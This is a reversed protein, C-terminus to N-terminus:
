MVEQVNININDVTVKDDNQMDKTYLFSMENYIIEERANNIQLVFANNGVDSDFLNKEKITSYNWMIYIDGNSRLFHRVEGVNGKKNESHLNIEIIKEDMNSEDELRIMIWVKEINSDFSYSLVSDDMVVVRKGFIDSELNTGYLGRTLSAIEWIGNEIYKVNECSVIENGICFVSNEEIGGKM